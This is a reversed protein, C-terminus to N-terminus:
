VGCFMISHTTPSTLASSTARRARSNVGAGTGPPTRSSLPQDPANEQPVISFVMSTEMGINAAPKADSGM